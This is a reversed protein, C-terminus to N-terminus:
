KKKQNEYYKRKGTPYFYTVVYGNKDVLVLENTKEKYKFTVGDVERIFSINEPSIENAFKVAKDSYEKWSLKM